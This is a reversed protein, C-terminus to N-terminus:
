EARFPAFPAAFHPRSNLGGDDSRLVMPAFFRTVIPM